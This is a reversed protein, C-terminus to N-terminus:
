GDVGVCRLWLRTLRGISEKRESEKHLRAFCICVRDLVDLGPKFNVSVQQFTTYKTLKKGIKCAYVTKSEVRM